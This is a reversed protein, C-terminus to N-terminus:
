TVNAVAFSRFRGLDAGIAMSLRFCRRKLRQASGIFSRASGSTVEGVGRVAGLVRDSSDAFVPLPPRRAGGCGRM